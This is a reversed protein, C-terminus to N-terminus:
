LLGMRNALRALVMTFKKSPVSLPTKRRETPNVSTRNARVKAPSSTAM